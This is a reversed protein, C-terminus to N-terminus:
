QGIVDWNRDILWFLIFLLLNRSLQVVIYYSNKCRFLFVYFITKIEFVMFPKLDSVFKKVLRIFDKWFVTYSYSYTPTHRIYKYAYIM